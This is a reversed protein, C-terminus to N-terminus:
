GERTRELSKNSREISQWEKALTEFDEWATPDNHRKRMHILFPEFYQFNTVLFKGVLRRAITPDVIKEAVALSFTELANLEALVIARLKPNAALAQADAESLSEAPEEIARHREDLESMRTDLERLVELTTQRKAYRNAIVAVSVAATATIADLITSIDLHCDM